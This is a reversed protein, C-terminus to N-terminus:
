GTLAWATLLGQAGARNTAVQAFLVLCLNLQLLLSILIDLLPLPLVIEAAHWQWQVTRHWLWHEWNNITELALVAIELGLISLSCPLM